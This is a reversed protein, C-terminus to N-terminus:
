SKSAQYNSIFDEVASEFIEKLFSRSDRKQETCIEEIKKHYKTDLTATFAGFMTLYPKHDLLLTLKAFFDYNPIEELNIYKELKAKKFGTIKSVDENDIKKIRCYDIYESIVSALPDWYDLEKQNDSTLYDREFQKLIDM